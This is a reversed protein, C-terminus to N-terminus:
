VGRVTKPLRWDRIAEVKVQEMEFSDASLEVGLFDVKNKHFECKKPNLTIGAERCRCFFARNTTIHEEMTGNHTNADDLYGVLNQVLEPRRYLMEDVFRQFVPPANMFGFTMVNCQYVRYPTIFATLWEQGLKVRLQNYGLKM